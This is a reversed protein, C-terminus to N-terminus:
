KPRLDLGVGKNVFQLTFAKKYDTDPKVIGAKVMKDFFDKVRAENMAGIGYKLTDGSDVVGYDKLKAISYAIQEDTMEPNDHKIAENAKKNDGYLRASIQRWRKDRRLAAALGPHSTHFLTPVRIGYRNIGASWFGCVANLFRMGVGAGQWEPMVVLRCARAERMGALTSVAVHSVLERDVTGVYNTAAVM